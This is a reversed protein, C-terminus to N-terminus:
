LKGEKPQVQAETSVIRDPQVQYNSFIKIRRKQKVKEINIKM